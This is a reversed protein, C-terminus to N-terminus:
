HASGICPDIHVPTFPFGHLPEDPEGQLCQTRVQFFKMIPKHLLSIIPQIKPLRDPNYKVRFDFSFYMIIELIFKLIVNKIFFIILHINIM